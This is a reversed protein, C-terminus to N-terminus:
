MTDEEAKTWLILNLKDRANAAYTGSTALVRSGHHQSLFQELDKSRVLFYLEGYEKVEGSHLVIPVERQAYYPSTYFEHKFQFLPAGRTREAVLSIFEKPSSRAGVAPSVIYLVVLMVLIQAFASFAIARRGLGNKLAHFGGLWAVASVFFLSLILLGHSMSIAFNADEILKPKNPLLPLVAHGFVPFFLLTACIAFMLICGLLAVRRPWALKMGTDFFYSVVLALQPLAPLFYVDRKSRSLTIVAFFIVFWVASLQVIEPVASRETRKDWLGAAALPLFFSWPLFGVVIDALASIAPRRHGVPGVGLFRGVNENLLQKDVFAEGGDFFALWYWPACFAVAIVAAVVFSPLLRLTKRVGCITLCGFGIFLAIVALAAPGKSLVSFASFVSLLFLLLPKTKAGAASSRIMEAAAIFAGTMGFTFCMDVRANSSQVAWLVTTGCIAVTGLAVATSVSSAAFIFFIALAFAGCLASPFRIAAESEGGALISAGRAIWHFMPPKSPQTNNREPLILDGTRAMAQVVLAERAEGRTYFPRNGLSAGHLLLLAAFVSSAIWIVSSSKM